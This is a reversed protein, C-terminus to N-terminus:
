PVKVLCKKALPYCKVNAIHVRLDPDRHLMRPLKHGYEKGNRLCIGRERVADKMKNVSGLDLKLAELMKEVDELSDIHEQARPMNNNIANAIAITQHV